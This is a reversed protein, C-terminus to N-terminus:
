KVPEYDLVLMSVNADEKVTFEAAPMQEIEKSRLRMSGEFMEIRAKKLRITSNKKVQKVQTDGIATFAIMGTEDGVTAEIVRPPKNRIIKVDVVKLIININEMEPRLNIVKM